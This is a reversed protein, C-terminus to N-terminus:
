AGAQPVPEFSLFPDPVWGENPPEAGKVKVLYYDTVPNQQYLIVEVESGHPARATVNFRLHSDYLLVTPQVLEGEYRGSLWAEGGAGWAIPIGCQSPDPNDPFPLDPVEPSRQAAILAEYTPELAPQTTVTQDSATETAPAAAAGTAPTKEGAGSCAATLLGIFLATLWSITNIRRM